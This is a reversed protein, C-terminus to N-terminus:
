EPHLMNKQSYQPLLWLDDDVASLNSMGVANAFKQLLKGYKRRVGGDAFVPRLSQVRRCLNGELAAAAREM